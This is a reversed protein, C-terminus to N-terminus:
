GLAAKSRGGAPDTIPDSTISGANAEVWSLPAKHKTVRHGLEIMPREIFRYVVSAILLTIAVVGMLYVPWIRPSILFTLTVLGVDQFLYASYSVTGLYMFAKSPTRRFVLVLVFVLLPLTM